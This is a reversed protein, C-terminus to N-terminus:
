SCGSLTDLTLMAEYKRESKRQLSRSGVFLRVLYAMFLVFFLLYVLLTLVCKIVASNVVGVEAM